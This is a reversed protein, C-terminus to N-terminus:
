KRRFVANIRPRNISTGNCYLMVKDGASFDISYAGEASDVAAAALTAGPILINNVHVEATWTEIDDTSLSLFILTADFPLVYPAQNMPLGDGDRLYIDTTAVSNRSATVETVDTYKYVLDVGDFVLAKDTAKDTDDVDEGKIKGVGPNPYTGTLDGGATGSPPGGGGTNTDLKVFGDLDNKWYYFEDESIIYVLTGPGKFTLGDEADAVTDYAIFSRQELVYPKGNVWKTNKTSM